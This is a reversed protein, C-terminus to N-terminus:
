LLTGFNQSKILFREVIKRSVFLYIFLYINIPFQKSTGNEQYSVNNLDTGQSAALQLQSIIQMEQILNFYDM